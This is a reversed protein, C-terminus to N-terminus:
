YALWGFVLGCPVGCVCNIVSFPENSTSKVFLLDLIIDFKPREEDLSVLVVLRVNLYLNLAFLLLILSLLDAGHYKFMHLFNCLSVATRARFDLICYHCDGSIEVELLFLRGLISCGNSAKVDLM